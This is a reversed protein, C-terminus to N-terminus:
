DVPMGFTVPIRIIKHSSDWRANMRKDPFMEQLVSAKLVNLMWPFPFHQGAAHHSLLADQLQHRGAVLSKFYKALEICRERFSESEWIGAYKLGLIWGPECLEFAPPPNHRRWRRILGKETLEAWTTPIIDAFGARDINWFKDALIKDDGLESAMTALVIEQHRRRDDKSITM